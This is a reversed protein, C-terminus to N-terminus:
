PCFTRVRFVTSQSILGARGAIFSLGRRHQDKSSWRSWFLGSRRQKLSRGGHLNPTRRNRRRSGTATRPATGKRSGPAHNSPHGDGGDTESGQRSDPRKDPHGGVPVRGCARAFQTLGMYPPTGGMVLIKQDPLRMKQLRRALSRALDEGLLRERNGQLRSRSAADRWFLGYSRSGHVSVAAAQPGCRARARSRGWNM